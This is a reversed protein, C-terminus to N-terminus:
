AEDRESRLIEVLAACEERCTPCLREHEEAKALAAAPARGEFRAEALAAMSALFDECGIEQDQTERIAELLSRIQADRLKM